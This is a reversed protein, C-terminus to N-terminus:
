PYSSSPQNPLQLPSYRYPTLVSAYRARRIDM